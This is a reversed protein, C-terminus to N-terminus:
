LNNAYEVVFELVIEDLMVVSYWSLKQLSSKDWAFGERRLM